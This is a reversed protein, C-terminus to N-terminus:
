RGSCTCSRADDIRHEHRLRLTCGSRLPTSAVILNNSLTYDPRAWLIDPVQQATSM